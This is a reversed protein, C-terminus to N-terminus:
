STSKSEGIRECTGEKTNLKYRGDYHITGYVEVFQERSTILVPEIIPGSKSGLIPGLWAEVSDGTTPEQIPPEKKRLSRLSGM